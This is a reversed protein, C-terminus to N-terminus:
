NLVSSFLTVLSFKGISLYFNIPQISLYKLQYIAVYINTLFLLFM